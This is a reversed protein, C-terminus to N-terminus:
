WRPSERRMAATLKKLAFSTPWVNGDDLKAAAQFGLTAYREKFKEAPTFFCVVKGGRQRLRADWVVDEALPDTRGGQRARPAEAMVRDAEPMAAISALADGEGDAKAGGRTEEGGQGGPRPVGDRREEDTFVKAKKRTATTSKTAKKTDNM